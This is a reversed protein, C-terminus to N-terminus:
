GKVSDVETTQPDVPVNSFEQKRLWANYAITPNQTNSYWLVICVDGFPIASRYRYAPILWGARLRDQRRRACGDSCIM